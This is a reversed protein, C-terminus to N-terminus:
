HPIPATPVYQKLLELVHGRLIFISKVRQDNGDRSFLQLWIILLAETSSGCRYVRGSDIPVQTSYSTRSARSLSLAVGSSLHVRRCNWTMFGQSALTHGLPHSYEYACCLYGVRRQRRVKTNPEVKPFYLSGPISISGNSGYKLLLYFPVAPFSTLTRSLCCALRTNM